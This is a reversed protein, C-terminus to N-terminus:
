GLNGGRRLDRLQRMLRAPTQPRELEARLVFGRLSRTNRVAAGAPLFDSTIYSFCFPWREGGGWGGVRWREELIQPKIIHSTQPRRLTSSLPSSPPPSWCFSPSTDKHQIVPRRLSVCSYFWILPESRGWTIMEGGANCCTSKGRYIFGIVGEDAEHERGCM